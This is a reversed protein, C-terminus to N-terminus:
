ADASSSPGLAITAGQYWSCGLALRRVPQPPHRLRDLLLEGGRRGMLAAPVEITTLSGQSLERGVQQGDFGVISYDRGAKLGFPILGLVFGVALEDSAAFVAEPRQPMRAYQAAVQAGSDIAYNKTRFQLPEPVPQGWGIEFGRLRTASTSVYGPKDDHNRRGIFCASACGAERLRQGAIMSGQEQDITVVDYNEVMGMPANGATTIVLLSQDRRAYLRSTSNPNIVVMADADSQDMGHNGPLLPLTPTACGAEMLVQRLSRLINIVMGDVPEGQPNQAFCLCVQRGALDLSPAAPGDPLAGSMPKANGLVFTGHRPRSVLVGEKVLERVAKHATQLGVGFQLALEAISPLRTGAPWDEQIRCRLRAKVDRHLLQVPVRSALNSTHVSSM